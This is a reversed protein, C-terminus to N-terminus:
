SFGLLILKSNKFQKNLAKNSNHLFYLVIYFSVIYFIKFYQKIVHIRASVFPIGFLVARQKHGRCVVEEPCKFLRYRVILKSKDVIDSEMILTHQKSAAAAVRVPFRLDVLGFMQNICILKAFIYYLSLKREHPLIHVDLRNQLHNVM